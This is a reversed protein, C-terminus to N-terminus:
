TSIMRVLTTELRPQILVTQGTPEMTVRGAPSLVRQPEYLNESPTISIGRRPFDWGKKPYRAVDGLGIAEPVRV